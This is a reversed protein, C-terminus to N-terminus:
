LYFVESWIRDEAIHLIGYSKKWSMLNGSLSGPNFLLTNEIKGQYPSHSHGFLIVEPKEKFEGYIRQALGFPSGLGHILGIKIESIQEVRKKPLLSKLEPCDMNGFVAYLLARRELEELVELCVFDGCHFIMDEGNIKELFEKPLKGTREPIHTDSIVWLNTM